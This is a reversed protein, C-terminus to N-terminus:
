GELMFHHRQWYILLEMVYNTIPRGVLPVHGVGKAVISALPFALLDWVPSRLLYLMWRAKRRRLEEATPASMAYDNLEGGGLGQRRLGCARRSLGVSIALLTLRHSLVDMALSVLWARAIPFKVNPEVEGLAHQHNRRRESLAWYLPRYVHLLEGMALLCLRSSAGLIKFQGSTGGQGANATPDLSAGAIIRRGTRRGIYKIRKLREVEEASSAAYEGPRLAGGDKLVGSCTMPDSGCEGIGRLQRRHERGLNVALVSLRCAFKMWELKAVADTRLAGAVREQRWKTPSRGGNEPEGRFSGVTTEVAPAVCELAALVGRVALLFTGIGTSYGVRRLGDPGSAIRAPGELGGGMVDIRGMEAEDRLGVTMGSGEGAGDTVADNILGWLSLAAYLTEAHMLGGGHPGESDVFRTPAFLVLRSLVDEVLNIAPRYRLLFARYRRLPSSPLDRPSVTLRAVTSADRRVTSEWSGADNQMGAVSHEKAGDCADRVNSTIM